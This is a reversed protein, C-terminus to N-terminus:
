KGEREDDRQQQMLGMVVAQQERFHDFCYPAGGLFETAIGGCEICVKVRWTSVPRQNLVHYQYDSDPDLNRM